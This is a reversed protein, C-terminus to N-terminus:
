PKEKFSSFKGLCTKFQKLQQEEESLILEYEEPDSDVAEFVM